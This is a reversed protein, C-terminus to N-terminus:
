LAAVNAITQVLVGALVLLVGLARRGINGGTARGREEAEVYRNWM